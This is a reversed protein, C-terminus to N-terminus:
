LAALVIVMYLLYAAALGLAGLTLYMGALRLGFRTCLMGCAHLCRGILLLSGLVHVLLLPGQLLAILLLLLLCLPTYQSFNAHTAIACQLPAHGGDGLSQRFKRRLMIVNLSLYLYLMALLAAYLAVSTM